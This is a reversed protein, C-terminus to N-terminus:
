FMHHKDHLRARVGGPTESTRSPGRDRRGARRPATTSSSSACWIMPPANGSPLTSGVSGASHSCNPKLRVTIRSPNFSSSSRPRTRTSCPRPVVTWGRVTQFMSSGTTM